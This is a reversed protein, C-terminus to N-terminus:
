QLPGCSKRRWVRLLAWSKHLPKPIGLTKCAALLEAGVVRSSALLGKLTRGCTRPLLEAALSLVTERTTAGVTPMGTHLLDPLHWGPIALKDTIELLALSQFCLRRSPLSGGRYERCGELNHM